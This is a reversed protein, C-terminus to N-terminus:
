EENLSDLPILYLLQIASSASKPQVIIEFVIRVHVAEFTRYGRYKFAEPNEHLTSLSPDGWPDGQGLKQSTFKVQLSLIRHRM